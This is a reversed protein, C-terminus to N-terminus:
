SPLYEKSCARTNITLSVMELPMKPAEIVKGSQVIFHKPSSGLYAKMKVPFDVAKGQGNVDLIYWWHYPLSLKNFDKLIFMANKFDRSLTGKNNFFYRYVDHKM